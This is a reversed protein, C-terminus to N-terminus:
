RRADSALQRAHARLCAPCLCDEDSSAPMPVRYTEDACWCGGTRGGTGCTFAAGCRACTLQRQSSATM